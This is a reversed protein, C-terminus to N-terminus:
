RVWWWALLAAALTGLLNVADNNLRGPGELLAGLLSDLFMGCLAALAVIWASSASVLGGLVAALAMGAAALAGCVTGVASIGGNTGVPVRAGTTVLRVPSDYAQGGESSVTDAAAEALAAAGAALLSVKGFAGYLTAFLASVGVNALVQSASRGEPREATGLALKRHRGLRTALLTLVFLAVLTAFAGFGANLYLLLAVAFGALAGSRTVGRLCYGALAFLFTVLTAALVARRSAPANMIGAIDRVDAATWHM